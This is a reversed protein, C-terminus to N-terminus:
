SYTKTTVWCGDKNQQLYIEIRIEDCNKAAMTSSISAKGSSSLEFDNIFTM